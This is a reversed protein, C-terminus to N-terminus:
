LTLSLGTTVGVRTHADFFGAVGGHHSEPYRVADVSVSLTISDTLSRSYGLSATYKCAGFDLDGLGCKGGISLGTNLPLALSAEAYVALDDMFPHDDYYDHLLHDINTLSFFDVAAEMQVPGVSFGLGAGLTPEFGVGFADSGGTSVDMLAYINDTGFRRELSFDVSRQRDEDAVMGGCSGDTVPVTVSLDFNDAGHAYVFATDNVSGGEGEVCAGAATHFIGFSNDAHAGAALFPLTALLTVLLRKNM